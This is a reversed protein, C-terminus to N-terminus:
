LGPNHSKLKLENSIKSIDANRYSTEVKYNIPLSFLSVPLFDLLSPFLDSDWDQTLVVDIEANKIKQDTHKLFETVFNFFEGAEHLRNLYSYSLVVGKCYPSDLMSRLDINPHFHWYFPIKFQEYFGVERLDSFELCFNYEQPGIAFGYNPNRSTFEKLDDIFKKIIYDQENEFQLFYRDTPSGANEILEM